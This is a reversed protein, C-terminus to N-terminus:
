MDSTNLRWKSSSSQASNMGGNEFEETNDYPFPSQLRFSHSPSSSEVADESLSSNPVFEERGDKRIFPTPYPSINPLNYLPSFPTEIQNEQNYRFHFLHGEGNSSTPSTKNFPSPSIIETIEGDDSMGFTTVSKGSNILKPQNRMQEVDSIGNTLIDDDDSFFGHRSSRKGSSDSKGSGGSFTAPLEVFMSRKLIGGNVKHGSSIMKTSPSLPHSTEIIQAPPGSSELVALSPKQVIIMDTLYIRKNESRSGSRYLVSFLYDAFFYAAFLCIGLILLLEEASLARPVM